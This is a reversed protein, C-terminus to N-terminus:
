LTFLKFRLHFGDLVFRLSTSCFFNKEQSFFIKFAFFTLLPIRDVQRGILLKKLEALNQIKQESSYFFNKQRSMFCKIAQNQNKNAFSSDPSDLNIRIKSSNTNFSFFHIGNSEKKVPNMGLPNIDWYLREQSCKKVM